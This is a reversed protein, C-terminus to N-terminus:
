VWHGARGKGSPGSAYTQWGRGHGSAIPSAAVISSSVVSSLSGKAGDRAPPETVKRYREGRRDELARREQFLLQNAYGTYKGFCNQVWIVLKDGALHKQNPFYGAVARKM